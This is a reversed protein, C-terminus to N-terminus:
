QAWNLSSFQLEILIVKGSDCSISTPVWVGFRTWIGPCLGRRCREKTIVEQGHLTQYLSM